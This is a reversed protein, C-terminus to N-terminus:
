TYARKAPMYVCVAHARLLWVLAAPERSRRNRVTTLWWTLHPSVSGPDEPFTTLARLQQARAGTGSAQTELPQSLQEM